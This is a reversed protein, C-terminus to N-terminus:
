TRFCLRHAHEHEKKPGPHFSHNPNNPNKLGNALVSFGVGTQLYQALIQLGPQIAGRPSDREM